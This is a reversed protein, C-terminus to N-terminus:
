WLEDEKDKNPVEIVRPKEIIRATRDGKEVIGIIWSQFGELREIDKCYAAAQERPLCILLGGSCESAQGQLVPWDGCPLSQWPMAVCPILSATFCDPKTQSAPPARLVGARIVLSCQTLLLIDPM